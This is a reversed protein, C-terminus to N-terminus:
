GASGGWRVDGAIYRRQRKEFEEREDLGCEDTVGCQIRDLFFENVAQRTGFENQIAQPVKTFVAV